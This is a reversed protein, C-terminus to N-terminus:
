SVGLCWVEALSFTIVSSFNAMILLATSFPLCNRWSPDLEVPFLFCNWIVPVASFSNQPSFRTVLTLVWISEGTLELTYFSSIITLCNFEILLFAISFISVPAFTFTKISFKSLVQTISNPVNFNWYPITSFISNIHFFYVLVMWGINQWSLHCEQNPTRFGKTERLWWGKLPHYYNPVELDLSSCILMESCYCWPMETSHWGGSNWGSGPCPSWDRDLQVFKLM